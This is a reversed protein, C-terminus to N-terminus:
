PLVETLPGFVDVLSSWSRLSMFTGSICEWCQSGSAKRWPDGDCDRVQQVGGEPEPDGEYWMTPKRKGREWAAEAEVQTSRLRAITYNAASLKDLAQVLEEQEEDFREKARLAERRAEDREATVAEVQGKRDESEDCVLRFQERWYAENAQANDREARLSEVTEPPTPPDLHDAIELLAYRSAHFSTPNREFLAQASLRHARAQEAPTLDDSM